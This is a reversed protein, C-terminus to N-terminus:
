ILDKAGVFEIEPRTNKFDKITFDHTEQDLAACTDEVVKISYGRDYADAIFSRVCLNTLFGTVVVEEVGLEKLKTELETKFFPSIKNKTILIDKDKQFDLDEIIEVSETGEKFEDESEPDIHATFIIPFNQDRFSKILKNLKEIKENVDGVFYGSDSNIFEKQYDIIVLANAM